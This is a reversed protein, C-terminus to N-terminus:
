LPSRADRPAGPPRGGPDASDRRMVLADAGSPQYYGKRIGIQQFGYRRYLRQARLNDTRVELFVETCGRRTAEALLAELLASGTGRGWHDAAVAITLVDGQTGAVLLGAYGTILGNDDAVLYYRSRPQEALEGALMQRSWAEEGFLEHELGLVAEIDASTMTRLSESGRSENGKPESV